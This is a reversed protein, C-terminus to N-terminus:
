QFSHALRHCCESSGLRSWLSHFAWLSWRSRAATMANSISHLVMLSLSKGPRDIVSMLFRYLSDRDFQHQASWLSFLCLVSRLRRRVLELSETFSLDDGLSGAAVVSSSWDKVGSESWSSPSELLRDLVTNENWSVDCLVARSTRFPYSPAVVYESNSWAMINSVRLGKSRPRCCSWLARFISMVIVPLPSAARWPSNKGDLGPTGQSPNATSWWHSSSKTPILEILAAEVDMPALIGPRVPFSSVPLRVINVRYLTSCPVSLLM